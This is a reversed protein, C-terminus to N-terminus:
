TAPEPAAVAIAPRPTRLWVALPAILIVLSGWYFAPIALTAALARSWGARSILLLAAAAIVRVSFPIPIQPGLPFGVNAVLHAIWEPWLHLWPLTIALSLLAVPLAKRWDRPDIALAPGLKALAGLVALRPRGRIALVIGAAILLNFNGGGLEFAVLPFWCAIGAGVWSGAILRLSAIKLVTFLWHQLVVPLWSVTAFLVALPPAYWFSDTPNPALYYIPTGTLVSDGVRDWILEDGGPIPFLGAKMGVILQVVVFAVGGFSLAVRAPSTARLGAAISSRSIL